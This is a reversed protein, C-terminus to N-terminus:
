RNQLRALIRSREAESLQDEQDWRAIQEDSYPEIELVIAPRRVIEGGREEITVVDRPRIALHKRMTAPVTIQGRSSVIVTESM